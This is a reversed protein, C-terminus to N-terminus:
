LAPDGTPTRAAHPVPRKAGIERLPESKVRSSSMSIRVPGDTPVARMGKEFRHSRLGSVPNPARGPPEPPRPPAPAAAPAGAPKRAEAGGQPAGEERLRPLLICLLTVIVLLAAGEMALVANLLTGKVRM